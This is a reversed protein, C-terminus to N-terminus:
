LTKSPDASLDNVILPFSEKSGCITYGYVTSNATLQATNGVMCSLMLSNYDDTKGTNNM